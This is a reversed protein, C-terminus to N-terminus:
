GNDGGIDTRYHKGEFRIMEAASYARERARELSEEVATVGLVRGGSTVVRGDEEKLTGAHFVMVGKDKVEDLGKIEKGKEYRGPYGGSALIVCVSKKDHWVIKVKNLSREVVAEMVETLSSEMRHLIV